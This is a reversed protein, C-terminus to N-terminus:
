ANGWARVRGRIRRSMAFLTSWLLLLNAVPEPVAAISGVAAGGLANRWVVYDAADVIGNGNGDAGGGKAVWKGSDARWKAYDGVDITGDSNYDGTVADPSRIWAISSIPPYADVLTDLLTGAVSGENLAYRLIQGRNDPPNTAGLVAVVVNGDADLVIESPYNTVDVPPPVPEIQAFVGLFAGTTSYRHIENAFMSVVLLDGNPVFLLSSPTLIPGTGSAIFTQQM